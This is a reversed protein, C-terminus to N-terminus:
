APIRVFRKLPLGLVFDHGMIVFRQSEFLANGHRFGEIDARLREMMFIAFDKGPL